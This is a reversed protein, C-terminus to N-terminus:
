RRRESGPLWHFSIQNLIQVLSGFDQPKQYFASAGLELARVRISEETAGSLVVSPLRAFYQNSRLLELLDLGSLLPMNVDLILLAPLSGSLESGAACAELYFLADLGNSKRIVSNTIGASEMALQLLLFYDDDDEAVLIPQLDSGYDFRAAELCGMMKMTHHKHM